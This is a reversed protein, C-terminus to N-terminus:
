KGAPAVTAAPPAVTEPGSEGVLAATKKAPQKAPTKKAASDAVAEFGDPVAQGEELPVDLVEGPGHTAGIHFWEWVESTINRLQM